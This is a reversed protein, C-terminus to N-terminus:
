KNIEANNEKFKPVNLNLGCGLTSRLFGVPSSFFGKPGFNGGFFTFGFYTLYLLAGAWGGFVGTLLLCTRRAGMGSRLGVLMSLISM